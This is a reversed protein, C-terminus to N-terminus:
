LINRPVPSYLPIYALGSPTALSERDESGEDLAPVHIANRDFPYVGTSRFGSIISSPHMAKLWAKSFLSIFNFRTVFRGPNNIIHLQCEEYWATKLPSFITKDLPQPLHTIHPPLCFLIVESAVAKHVVAPYHSSHGDM